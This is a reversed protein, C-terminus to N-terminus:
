KALKIKCTVTGKNDALAGWDDRCRLFLWGNSPATWTGTTGLEFEESLAYDSFLCGVVRGRGDEDGDATMPEGDSALTWEGTCDYSYTKGVEIRVKSAQWGRDSKLKISTGAGGRPPIFKAKWDWSCLDVRYGPEIHELFFKYEFAIETAQEGYVSWFDVDAGNLLALGLPKFRETYNENFGLLHCLAWRWAYNQWSDGTTELPSNVIEDLPKPESRRLYEIVAPNATVGKEKERWYQGVEAMGESYWVPGTTGFTLVCYAHVAEHQPTGHDAVAYVEAISDVAQGNVFQTVAKTVGAGGRIQSIGDPQMQALIEDPWSDLDRAVYMDISKTLRRGWYSAVFETMTELRTLLEEAENAPLDTILRFNRSSYQQVGASTNTKTDLTSQAPAQITLCGVIALLLLVLRPRRQWRRRDRRANVPKTQTRSRNPTNSM